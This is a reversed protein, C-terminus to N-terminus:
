VDDEDAEIRVWCGPNDKDVLIDGFMLSVYRQSDDKLAGAGYLRLGRRKTIGDLIFKAGGYINDPDRRRSTEVFTLIVTSKGSPMKWGQEAMAERCYSEANEGNERKVRNGFRYDTKEARILENLGDLPAPLGKRTRRNSPIFFELVRM